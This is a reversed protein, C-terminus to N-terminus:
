PAGERRPVKLELLKKVVDDGAAGANVGRDVFLIRGDTGIYFTQRAAYGSKLVGYAEATKKDPDSLIPYDLGLSQAFKRNTDADDV